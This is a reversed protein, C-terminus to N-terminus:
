RVAEATQVALTFAKVRSWTAILNEKKWSVKVEVQQLPVIQGKLKQGLNVGDISM